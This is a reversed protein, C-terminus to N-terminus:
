AVSHLKFPVAGSQRKDASTFARVTESAVREVEVDNLRGSLHFSVAGHLGTWLMRGILECEQHSADSSLLARAHATMISRVRIEQPHTPAAYRNGTQSLDFMLRYYIHEERAFQVYARGLAASRDATTGPRAQVIELQDALRGFARTRLMDLIENKDRFYRYPTMASVGFRKGLERMHFGDYGVESFLQAAADCLGERFDNIATPTLIRPM